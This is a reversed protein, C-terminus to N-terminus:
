EKGGDREDIHTYEQTFKNGHIHAIVCTKVSFSNNRTMQIETALACGETLCQPFNFGRESYQIPRINKQRYLILCLDLAVM